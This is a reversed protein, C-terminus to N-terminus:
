QFFMCSNRSCYRECSGAFFFVGPISTNKMFKERSPLQSGTMSDPIDLIKLFDRWKKHLKLDSGVFFGGQGMPSWEFWGGGLFFVCSTPPKLGGMQFIHEDFHSDIKGLKRPSFKLLDKLLVVVLFVPPTPFPVNHYRQLLRQLELKRAQKQEQSQHSDHRSTLMCYGGRLFIAKGM